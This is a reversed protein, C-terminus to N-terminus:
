SRDARVVPLAPHFEYSSYDLEVPEGDSYVRSIDPDILM